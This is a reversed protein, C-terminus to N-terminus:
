AHTPMSCHMLSTGVKKIPAYTPAAEKGWMEAYAITEYLMESDLNDGDDDADGIYGRASLFSLIRM